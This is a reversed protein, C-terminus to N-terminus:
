KQPNIVLCTSKVCTTFKSHLNRMPPFNNVGTITSLFLSGEGGGGGGVCGTDCFWAFRTLKASRAGVCRRSEVVAHTSSSGRWSRKYHSICTQSVPISAREQRRPWLASGLRRYLRKWMLATQGCLTSCDHITVNKHFGTLTKSTRVQLLMGLERKRRLRESRENTTSVISIVTDNKRDAPLSATTWRIYLFIWVYCALM